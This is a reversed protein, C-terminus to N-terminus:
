LTNLDDLHRSPVSLALPPRPNWAADFSSVNVCNTPGISATDWAGHIHGFLHLSPHVRNLLTLSLASDGVLNEGNFDGVGFAPGHTLLLDTDAPILAWKEALAPGRELTFAHNPMFIPQWPSGYIKVGDITISEDILVHVTPGLIARARVPDLTFVTDHNGPVFITEQARATLWSAFATLQTWLDEDSHASFLDLADGTFIVLPTPPLDIQQHRAHTDGLALFDM